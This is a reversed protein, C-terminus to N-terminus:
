ALGVARAAALAAGTAAEECSTALECRLGFEAAIIQQALPNKRVANGGALVKRFSRSLQAPLMGSLERIMGRVFGLSLAAPTFNDLGIDNIGGRLKPNTRTGAFRTDVTPATTAGAAMRNMVQYLEADSLAAGTFERITQQFFDKLQAYARGGCLSAGVLLFGGFPLPRTEVEPCFVFERCPLSIQGGTGLNLLMADSDLGCTGMFSAQNDGLPSCVTVRSPLGLAVRLPGLETLGPKIEPLVDEPIALRTVLEKDWEHCRIDMIGWSAAHTPETAAIGTLRAAVFDAISFATSRQPIGGQTALIALTAGGYGPHLYCGTRGVPWTARDLSATLAAARQDCWTILNTVPNLARDALLVGHMQGAIAITRVEARATDGSAIVGRLLELCQRYIIEPAQEHRGPPLGSIAAQNAVSLVFTNQRKACDFATAAIKSTGIDLTLISPM